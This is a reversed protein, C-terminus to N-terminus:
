NQPDCSDRFSSIRRETTTAQTLHSVRRQLEALSTTIHITESNDGVVMAGKSAAALEIIATRLMDTSLEQFKSENVLGGWIMTITRHGKVSETGGLYALIAGYLEQKNWSPNNLLEDIAQKVDIPAFKNLVIQVIQRAGIHRTEAAEVVRALQEVTWCSIKEQRAETAVATTDSDAGVYGPAVLLCGDAKYRADTMHRRLAAFGIDEPRKATTSSKAELTITTEGSAYDLYRAIGDPENSNSIQNANFGLARAAVVLNIELEHEDATVERLRRAITPFSYSHDKVLSRLLDDRKQLIDGIVHPSVHLERLYVELLMEATVFDELLRSAHADDGYEKALEHESNIWFKSEVPDFKVLRDVGQASYVYTYKSRPATYFQEVLKDIDTGEPINMYFWAENAEAGRAEYRQSVLADAVPREVLGPAVLGKEGEKKGSENSKQNAWALYRSDAENFIERLLARFHAKRPSEEVTDRNATLDIDLDDARIDARFRNLTGYRMPTMGFLPDVLDVVRDHVRVFFGHSRQIDDSKQGYLSAETVFVEGTVGSPFSGSVLTEENVRWNEGTEKALDALRKKPLETLSFEVARVYDEKSSTIQENNLFLQFDTDLPM